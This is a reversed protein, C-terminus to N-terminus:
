AGSPRSTPPRPNGLEPNLLDIGVGKCKIWPGSPHGAGEWTALGDIADTQHEYCYRREYGETTLGVVVAWTYAFPLVGCWGQGPIHRVEEYGNQKVTALLAAPM